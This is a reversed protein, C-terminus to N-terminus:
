IYEHAFISLFPDLEGPKPTSQRLCGNVDHAKSFLSSSFTYRCVHGHRAFCGFELVMDDPLGTGCLPQNIKGCVM